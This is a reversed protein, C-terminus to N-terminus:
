SMRPQLARAIRRPLAAAVTLALAGGISEGVLTVGTLDLKEIFGIVGQKLYPEDHELIGPM